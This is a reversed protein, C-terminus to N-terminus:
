LFSAAHDSYTRPDSSEHHCGCRDGGFFSFCCDASAYPLDWDSTLIFFVRWTPSTRKCVPSWKPVDPLGARNGNILESPTLSLPIGNGRQDILCNRKRLPFALSDVEQPSLVAGGYLAPSPPPLRRVSFFRSSRDPLRFVAVISLVAIGQHTIHAHHQFFFNM